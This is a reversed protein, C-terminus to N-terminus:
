NRLQQNLTELESQWKMLKKRYEECRSLHHYDYKKAVTASRQLWDIGAELNGEIECILAMNYTTKTAINKNKNTTLRQYIEAAGLYDESLLKKEAELMQPNNSRYYIRGVPREHPILENAFSEGLTGATNKLLDRHNEDSGFLEPNVSNGYFLDDTRRYSNQSNKIKLAISWRLRTGVIEMSTSHKFEPFSSIVAKDFFFSDTMMEDHLGIFDLYVTADYPLSDKQRQAIDKAFVPYLLSDRYNIVAKFYGSNRLYDALADTCINSLDKYKVLTDKVMKDEAVNKYYFTDRGLTNYDYSRNIIAVTHISDTALMGPGSLMPRIVKFNETTICSTFLPLILGLLLLKRNKM